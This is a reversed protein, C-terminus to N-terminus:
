FPEEKINNWWTDLEEASAHELDCVGYVCDVAQKITDPEPPIEEALRELSDMAINEPCNPCDPNRCEWDNPGFPVRRETMQEDCEGCRPNEPREWPNDAYYGM